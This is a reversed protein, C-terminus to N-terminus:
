SFISEKCGLCIKMKQNVRYCKKGSQSKTEFSEMMNWKKFNAHQQSIETGQIDKLDM